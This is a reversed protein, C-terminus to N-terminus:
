LKKQQIKRKLAWICKQTSNNISYVYSEKLTKMKLAEQEYDMEHIHKILEEQTQCVCGPLLEELRKYLGRTRYYEEYDYAFLLAPRELIAFDTLTSSYDTILIDSMKMLENIDYTGSYDRVFDNFEINLVSNTLHHMRFILVYEKSLQEEWYAINIPPKIISSNEANTPERWTPAYLIVKRGFPIRYKDRLKMKEELSTNFLTDNRPMGCRMLSQKKARYDRMFVCDQWESNSCLIDIDSFNYDNRNKQANGDVKLPACGHWTDLYVTRKPKFHLGREINVNTIWVGSSLAVYFYRLSNLKVKSAGDVKFQNPNDFAWVFSYGQFFPDRKMAEFLVRPSDGYNKGILSQFLVQKENVRVFRGILRFLVSFLIIYMRQVYKNHKIIYEIRKMM